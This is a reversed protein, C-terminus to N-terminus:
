AIKTEHSSHVARLRVSSPSSRASFSSSLKPLSQLSQVYRSHALERPLSSPRSSRPSRRTRSAQPSRRRHSRLSPLRPDARTPQPLAPFTCGNAEVNCPLLEWRCLTPLTTRTLRISSDEPESLCLRGDFCARGPQFDTPRGLEVDRGEGRVEGAENWSRALGGEVRGGGVEAGWVQGEADRPDACLSLSKRIKRRFDKDNQRRYDFWVAYGAVSTLM